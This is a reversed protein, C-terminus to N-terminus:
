PFKFAETKGGTFYQIYTRRLIATHLLCYSGPATIWIIHSDFIKWTINKSVLYWNYLIAVHSVRCCICLGCLREYYGVSNKDDTSSVYLLDMPNKQRHKRIKMPVANVYDSFRRRSHRVISVWDIMIGAFVFVSGIPHSYYKKQKNIIIIDSFLYINRRIPLLRTKCYVHAAQSVHPNSCLSKKNWRSPRFSVITPTASEATGRHSSKSKAKSYM